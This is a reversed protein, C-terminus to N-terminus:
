PRVYGPERLLAEDFTAISECGAERALERIVYDAFGGKGAAYADVARALLSSDRFDLHEAELLARLAESTRARSFGYARDLVWAVECLVPESVHFREGREAARRIFSQARRFQSEDDRVLFRVVVNTDLGIM